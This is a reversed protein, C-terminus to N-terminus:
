GALDEGLAANFNAVSPMALSYFVKLHRREAEVVGARRLVCLHRSVNSQEAETYKVIEQVCQEGDALFDVIALRIPHGLAKYVAAKHELTDKSM